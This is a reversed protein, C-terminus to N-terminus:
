RGRMCACCMVVHIYATYGTDLVELSYCAARYDLSATFACSRAVALM